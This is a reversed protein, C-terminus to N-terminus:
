NKKANKTEWDQLEVLHDQYHEYTNDAFLDWPKWDSPMNPFLSPDHLDEETLTPMAQMLAKFVTASEDLVDKLAREKNENYIVANRQDLPLDWLDSGVLAHAQIVNLMEREHWTIHAIVDKVSWDGTAGARAMLSPDMGALLADLEARSQRIKDILQSKSPEDHM